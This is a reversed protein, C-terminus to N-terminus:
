KIGIFGLFFYTVRVILFSLWRCIYSCINLVFACAVFYYYGIHPYSFDAPSHCMTFNLNVMTLKSLPALVILQYLVM